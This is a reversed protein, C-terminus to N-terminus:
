DRPMMPRRARSAQLFGASMVVVGLALAVSFASGRGVGRLAFSGFAVVSVGIAILWNARVRGRPPRVGGRPRATAVAILVVVVWALISYLRAFTVMSPDLKWADRGRPIQRTGLSSADLTAGLTKILGFVSGVVVGALAFAGPVRNLLAISGVALWPVNLLAGFLWFTRYTAGSWGGFTGVAVAISAIAYMALATGWALHPLRHRRSFQALLAVAFLASVGAAVLPFVIM